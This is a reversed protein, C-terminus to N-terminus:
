IPFDCQALYDGLKQAAEATRRQLRLLEPLGTIPHMIARLALRAINFRGDSMIFREFDISFTENALDSVVRVCYFPVALEQAARAVGAAEM